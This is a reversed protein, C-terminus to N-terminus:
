KKKVSFWLCLAIGIVICFGAALMGIFYTPMRNQVITLGSASQVHNEAAVPVNQVTEEGMVAQSSTEAQESHRSRNKKKKVAQLAREAAESESTRRLRSFKSRPLHQSSDLTHRAKSKSSSSHTTCAKSDESAESEEEKKARSVTIHYQTQTKGDSSTVTVLIPTDTGADNLSKRSVKVSANEAANAQFTVSRVDSGVSLNYYTVNPSFEPSLTGQSPELATLYAQKSVNQKINLPLTTYSDMDLSDGSYDCVEDISASLATDGIPADEKVQFLFTLVTGSLRPAYEKEVNCVYVSYVPNSEGNTQLTGNEMDPSSETGVYQLVSDDYAVRVRFGAVATSQNLRVKLEVIDEKSVSQSSLQFSFGSWEAAAPITIMQMTFFVALILATLVRIQKM